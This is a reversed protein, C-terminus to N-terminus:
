PWVHFGKSEDFNSVKFQLSLEGGLQLECPRVLTVQPTRSKRKVGFDIQKGGFSIRRFLNNDLAM